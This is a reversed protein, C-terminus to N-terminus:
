YKWQNVINSRSGSKLRLNSGRRNSSLRDWVNQPEPNEERKPSRDRISQYRRAIGKRASTQVSKARSNSRAKSKKVPTLSNQLNLEQAKETHPNVYPQIFSSRQYLSRNSKPTKRKRLNSFQRDFMDNPLESISNYNGRERQKQTMYKSEYPVEASTKYPESKFTNREYDNIHSKFSELKKQANLIMDRLNGNEANPAQEQNKPSFAPTDTLPATNDFSQEYNISRFVPSNSGRLPSNNSQRLNPNYPTEVNQYRNRVDTPHTQYQTAPTVEYNGDM